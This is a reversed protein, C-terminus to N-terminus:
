GVVVGDPQKGAITTSGYVNSQPSTQLTNGPEDAMDVRSQALRNATSQWASREDAVISECTRILLAINDTGAREVDSLVDWFARLKKLARIARTYREIKRSNDSFEAWGTFAAAASTVFVVQSSFDLYALTSSVAGLMLIVCTLLNARRTYVPIREQYFKIMPDLRLEIYTEPKVPSHFDDSGPKLDVPQHAPALQYHKYVYAEYRRELATTQLDAASVLEDRWSNLADLFAREPKHSDSVSQAFFGVRARYCWLLSDLACACSRLQRWRTKSNLWGDISITISVMISCVFLAHKLVSSEISNDEQGQRVVAIVVVLWGLFLEFIFFSKAALKHRYALYMAVDYECWAQRLLLLGSLNTEKPLRDLKVLEAVLRQSKATNSVNLSHFNRSSLLTRVHASMAAINQEFSIEFTTGSQKLAKLDEVGAVADVAGSNWADEFYKYTLWSAVETVEEDTARPLAGQDDHVSLGNEAREIALFLPVGAAKYVEEKLTSPDGDGFLADHFYAISMADFSECLGQKLLQDSMQIYNDKAMKILSVRDSATLEARERVDLFLMPSGSLMLETAVGLSSAHMGSNELHPKDGHGTKVTLSPLTSALHRVLENLLKNFARRDGIRNRKADITDVVLFLVGNPDLDYEAVPVDNKYKALVMEQIKRDRQRWAKSGRKIGRWVTNLSPNQYLKAVDASVSLVTFPLTTGWKSRHISLMRTLSASLMCLHPSGSCVIIASTTAALPLLVDVMFCDLRNILEREDRLSIFPGNGPMLGVDEEGLREPLLRCHSTLGQSILLNIILKPKPVELVDLMRQLTESSQSILDAQANTLFLLQRRAGGTSGAEIDETLEHMTKAKIMQLQHQHQEATLSEDPELDDRSAQSLADYDSGEQGKSGVKMAPAFSVRRDAVAQHENVSFSVRDPGASSIAGPLSPASEQLPMVSDLQHLAAEVDANSANGADTM